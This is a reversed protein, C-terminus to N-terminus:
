ATRDVTFVPLADHTQVADTEREVHTIEADSHYKCYMIDDPGVFSAATERDENLCAFCLSGGTEIVPQAPIGKEGSLDNGNKDVPVRSALQIGTAVWSAIDMKEQHMENIDKSWPLWLSAKDEFVDLWYHAAAEGKGQDNDFAVLIHSALALAAVWRSLQAGKTSGTAVAACGTAQMVTM